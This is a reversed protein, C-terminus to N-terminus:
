ATPRAKARDQGARLGSEARPAPLDHVPEPGRGSRRWPVPVLSGRRIAVALLALSCLSCLAMAVVSAEAGFVGGSLWDPGSRTSVLWGDAKLGSVPIGYVTGQCFNWAAHLGMCIPLSRTVHYLLGFLLGAEIAIAMSSWTTANPNSAHMFGFVLASVVLAAWTGLGEEVIRFLVGRFMIEEGIGAGLGVMLLAPLWAAHPNFGIVHYSGLLWLTGVIASFLMTGAAIGLLGHPLLKRLALEPMPRREVLKALVLYAILPPLSRGIFQALGYQLAPAGKDWGLAHMAHEALIVGGMFLAIFIVIRALPSLLLWRKWAPVTM